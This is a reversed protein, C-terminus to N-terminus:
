AAKTSSGKWKQMALAISKIGTEFPVSEMSTSNLLWGLTHCGSVLGFMVTFLKVLTGLRDLGLAVIIMVLAHAIQYVICELKHTECLEFQSMWAKAGATGAAIQKDWEALIANKEKYNEMMFQKPENMDQAIHMRKLHIFIDVPKGGIGQNLTYIDPIVRDPSLLNCNLLKGDRIFALCVSVVPGQCDRVQRLLTMSGKYRPTLVYDFPQYNQDVCFQRCAAVYEMDKPGFDVVVGSGNVPSILSIILPLANLCLFCHLSGGEPSLFLMRREEASHFDCINEKITPADRLFSRWVFIDHCVLKRYWGILPMFQILAECVFGVRIRECSKVALRRSFGVFMGVMWDIRSGHNALLLSNTSKAHELLAIDNCYIKSGTFIMPMFFVIPTTWNIIATTIALYMKSPLIRIKHLLFIPVGLFILDFMVNGCLLAVSLHCYIMVCLLKLAGAGEVLQRKKAAGSNM